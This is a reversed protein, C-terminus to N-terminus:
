GEVVQQWPHYMDLNIIIMIRYALEPDQTGDLDKM